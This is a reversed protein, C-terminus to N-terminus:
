RGFGSGATNAVSMKVADPKKVLVRSILAGATATPKKMVAMGPILATALDTNKKKAILAMGPILATATPKKMAAMGPILAALALNKTKEMVMTPACADRTGKGVAWSRTYGKGSATNRCECGSKACCNDKDIRVWGSQNRGGWFCQGTANQTKEIVAGDGVISRRIEDKGAKDWEAKCDTNNTNRCLRDANGGWGPHVYGLARLRDRGLDRGSRGAGALGWTPLGAAPAKVIEGPSKCDRGDPTRCLKGNPQWHVFGASNLVRIRENNAGKAQRERKDATYEALRPAGPVYVKAAYDKKLCRGQFWTKGRNKCDLEQAVLDFDAAPACKKLATSYRLGQGKDCVCKGKGEDFVKDPACDGSLGEFRARRQGGAAALVILALVCMVALSYRM